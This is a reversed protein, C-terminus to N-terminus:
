PPINAAVSKHHRSPCIGELQRPFLMPHCGKRCRLHKQTEHSMVQLWCPLLSCKKTAATSTEGWKKSPIDQKRHHSAYQSWYADQRDTCWHTNEGSSVAVQRRRLRRENWRHPLKFNNVTDSGQVRKFFDEVFFLNVPLANPYCRYM